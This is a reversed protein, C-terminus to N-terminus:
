NKYFLFATEGNGNRRRKRSDGSMQSKQFNQDFKRTHQYNLHDFARSALVEFLMLDGGDLQSYEFIKGM